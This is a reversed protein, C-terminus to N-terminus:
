VMMKIMEDENERLWQKMSMGERIREIGRSVDGDVLGRGLWWLASVADRLCILTPIAAIEDASPQVWRTYGLWFAAGFALPDDREGIRLSFELGSAIDIARADPQTHDFDLVATLRDAHFLTNAPVYDGHTMQHPLHVYVRRTFEDLEALDAQWRALLDVLDPATPLGLDAPTLAFPDPIARHVHRLDGYGHVHPRPELPYEILACHLEGLAAGVARIEEIQGHDPPAGPIRPFLAGWGDPTAVLTDGDTTPLPAPVAFSLERGALWTLLRHEYRIAAPDTHTQYVKWVFDGEGSRIGLTRNNIGAASLAFATFPPTLPYASLDSYM